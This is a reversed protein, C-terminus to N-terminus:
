ADLSYHALLEAAAVDAVRQATEHVLAIADIGAVVRQRRNGHTRDLVLHHAADHQPM